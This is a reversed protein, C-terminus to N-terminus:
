KLGLATKLDELSVSDSIEVPEPHGDEEGKLQLWFSGEESVAAKKVVSGLDVEFLKGASNGSAMKGLYTEFSRKGFRVVINCQPFEELCALCHIVEQLSYAPLSGEQIYISDIFPSTKVIRKLLEYFSMTFEPFLSELLNGNNDTWTVIYEQDDPSLSTPLCNTLRPLENFM